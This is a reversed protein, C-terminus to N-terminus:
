AAPAPAGDGAVTLAKEIEVSTGDDGSDVSLATTTARMLQLGLGRHSRDVPPVWRGSDKVRIRIRTDDLEAFVDVFREVPAEAHEIANACAEWTALVVDQADEVRLPAPDLWSRLADRVLVLSALDAPVRLHLPKPAVALFRVALLAIDDGREGDGVLRELVHEILGDPDKPGTEVASVLADLGDDITRDRREVLGDTYLLLITGDPVELVAQPYSSEAGTGLPLGRGEELLEVRGDAYAVLPPPHGASTFRCVRSEPDVIAYVVTAFAADLIEEAIRNLRAVTSSTRMQDLSFARLANRLQGMTAAAQVGKGVVDGVVLALRGDGLRIADFWDGGVDLEATGPLYRAALHIGDIRPLSGPLVTRQLTEAITRELEFHRARDLAQAVQSVLTEVFARDERSLNPPEAWSITVLGDAQRGAVLPEFLFARHGTGALAAAPRGGFEEDIEDLSAYYRAARRRLARSAPAPEDLQIEGWQELVEPPYGRSVLTRVTQAEESVVAIAIGDAEVAKAIEEAAVEAVDSRTLSGSLAATMSQLRESRKRLRQEDDLLRSRELAQGCQTVLALLWARENEDLQRLERFSLQVAGRIGTGATFPLAVWGRDPEVHGADRVTALGHRSADDLAWVPEDARIARCLPLDSELPIEGLSAIEDDEYGRTTMLEVESSDRPVLGILGGAAGVAEFAHELCTGGVIAPTSAQSLAATVEQLRRTELARREAEREARRREVQELALGAQDIFRRVLLFTSPDPEAITARWSITLMMEARDGVVFPARLSSKVGLRRIRALGDARAEAELDAVFSIRLAAVADALQPFDELFAERGPTMLDNPPDCHVLTMRDEDLRWLAAMDAGFTLRGERCIAEAAAERSDTHFRPAARLIRDLAQSSELEREYLRSRELAQGGLDAVISAIAEVNADVTGSRDFLLSLSGVVEGAVHLPMAVAAHGWPTLRVGDPFEDEFTARDPVVVPEGDRAVRAIPARAELSLRSGPPHTQSYPNVTPDVVVVEDDEILGLSGGRAGILPPTREILVHAVDATTLAASLAEAVGQIGELELVAGVARERGMRMAISVWVVAVAVALPIAWRVLDGATGQEPHAAPGVFLVLSLGWGTAIALLGPGLGGYWASVAVAGVLLSYVPADSAPLFALAITISGLTAALAVGYRAQWPRAALEFRKGQEGVAPATERAM